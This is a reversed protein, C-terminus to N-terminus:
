AVGKADDSCILIDNPDCDFVRCYAALQDSDIPRANSEHRQITPLSLGTMEAMMKQSFKLEARLERLRNKYGLPHRMNQLISM